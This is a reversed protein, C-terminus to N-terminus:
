ANKTVLSVQLAFQAITKNPTQNVHEQPAFPQNVSEPIASLGPRAHYKRQFSVERLATFGPHALVLFRLCVLLKV